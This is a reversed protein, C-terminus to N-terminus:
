APKFLVGGTNLTTLEAVTVGALTLVSGDPLTVVAGGASDTASALIATNGGASENQYFLSDNAGATTAFGTVTDTATSSGAVSDFTGFRMEAGAVTTSHDFLGTGSPSNAGVGIVDGNGGWVSDAGNSAIITDNVLASDHQGGSFLAFANVTANGSSASLDISDGVGTGVNFNLTSSGTGTITDGGGATGSVNNAGAVLTIGMGGLSGDIATTGSGGTITSGSAGIIFSNGHNASLDVLSNAGANVGLSANGALARVTESGAGSISESGSAGGVVTNTLGVAIQTGAGSGGVISDNSGGWISDTNSGGVITQSGGILGNLVQVGSGGKLTDGPAGIVNQNGSGLDILAASQASSGTSSDNLIYNGTGLVLHPGTLFNNVLTGGADLVGDTFGTDLAPITTLGPATFVEINVPAAPTGATHATGNNIGLGAAVITGSQDVTFVFQGGTPSAM